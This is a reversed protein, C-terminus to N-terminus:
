KQQKQVQIKQKLQSKCFTKKKKQLHSKFSENKSKKM